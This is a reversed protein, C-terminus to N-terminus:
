ATQKDSLVSPTELMEAQLPTGAKVSRTVKQGLVADWHRPHLGAAPRISRLNEASLRDGAQLDEVIYLSRRFKLSVRERDTPGYYARGLCAQATRAAGLMRAFEGPEMSFAADPGGDKRSLTFHKEILCAGLATASSAVNDGLTHDSLGVPLQFDEQMKPILALNAEEITAPYAATCKLLCIDRCGALQLADVAERIEDYTGMGTSLIVPKGTKAVLRLLPIDVLESSAIKWVPMDLTELFEVATPDFPASFAQMGLRNAEKFLPEHWDWPMHATEYLDYLSTGEWITGDVQFEPRDSKITITDPRYTQFKVADAGAEAAAQVLRMAYNFDQRHNASIEAVFYVPCGTGIKRGAIDFHM